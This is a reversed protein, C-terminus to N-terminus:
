EPPVIYAATERSPHCAEVKERNHVDKWLNYSWNSLLEKHDERPASSSIDNWLRRQNNVGDM